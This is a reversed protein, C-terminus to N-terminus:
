RSAPATEQRDPATARQSETSKMGVIIVQKARDCVSTTYIQEAFRNAYKVDSKLTLFEVARYYTEDRITTTYIKATTELALDYKGACLADYVLSAYAKDRQDTNYITGATNITEQLHANEQCPPPIEIDPLDKVEPHPQQTVPKDTKKSDFSAEPRSTLSSLRDKLAVGPFIAYLAVVASIIAAIWSAKELRPNM